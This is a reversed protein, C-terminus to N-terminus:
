EGVLEEVFEAHSRVRECLNCEMPAELALPDGEDSTPFDDKHAIPYLTGGCSEHPCLYRLLFLTHEVQPSIEPSEEGEDGGGYDEGEDEGCEGRDWSGGSTAGSYAGGGGGAEENEVREGGGGDEVVDEGADGVAEEEEGGSSRGEETSDDEEGDNDEEGEEWLQELICRRCRCVFGFEEALKEKREELSWSLPTYCIVVESGKPIRCMSYIRMTTKNQEGWKFKEVRCANPFCQSNMMAAKEMLVQSRVRREGNRGNPAMIAFSNYKDVLLFKQLKAYEVGALLAQAKEVNTLLGWVSQSMAVDDETPEDPVYANLITAEFSPSKV